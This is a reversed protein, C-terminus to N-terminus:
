SGPLHPTMIAVYLYMSHHASFPPYWSWCHHSKRTIIGVVYIYPDTRRCTSTSLCVLGVGEGLAASFAYLVNITPDLWKTLKNNSSTSQDLEQGQQRLVTIVASPSDCAQLQAALPHMHLDQRTRRKYATL